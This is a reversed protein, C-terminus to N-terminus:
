EICNLSIIFVNYILFSRLCTYILSLQLYLLQRHVSLRIDLSLKNWLKPAAVSYARDGSTKLNALPEELFHKNSSRVVRGSNKYKLLDKIYSPAQGNLAEYALLLIKFIIRYCVPLWHLRRLIPPIHEYKRSASALRAASNQM